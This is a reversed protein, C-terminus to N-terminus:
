HLPASRSVHIPERITQVDVNCIYLINPQVIVVVAFFSVLAAIHKSLQNCSIIFILLRSFFGIFWIVIINFILLSSHSTVFFLDIDIRIVLYMNYRTLLDETVYLEINDIVFVILYNDEKRCCSVMDTLTLIDGSIQIEFWIFFM